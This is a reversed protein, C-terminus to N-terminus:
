KGRYAKRGISDGSLAPQLARMATDEDKVRLSMIAGFGGRPETGYVVGDFEGLSASELVEVIRRVLGGVLDMEDSDERLPVLLRLETLTAAAAQGMARATEGDASSRVSADDVNPVIQSTNCGACRGKKSANAVSSKLIKGCSPCRWRIVGNSLEPFTPEHLGLGPDGTDKSQGEDPQSSAPAKPVAASEAPEIQYAGEALKGVLDDFTTSSTLTCGPQPFNEYCSVPAIAADEAPLLTRAILQSFESGRKAETLRWHADRSGIMVLLHRVKEGASVARLPIVELRQATPSSAWAAFVKTQARFNETQSQSFVSIATAEGQKIRAVLKDIRNRNVDHITNELLGRLEKAGYVKPPQSKTGKNKSEYCDKCFHTDQLEGGIFESLHVTAEKSNCRACLM